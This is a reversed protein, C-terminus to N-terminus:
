ETSDPKGLMLAERALKAADEVSIEVPDGVNGHLRRDVENQQASSHSGPPGASSSFAETAVRRAEDDSLTLSTGLPQRAQAALYQDDWLSPSRGVSATEGTVSTEAEEAVGSAIAGALAEEIFRRLPLRLEAARSKAALYIDERISAYIQRTPLSHERTRPM